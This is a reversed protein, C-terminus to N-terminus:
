LTLPPDTQTMQAPQPAVGLVHGPSPVCYARENADCRIACVLASAGRSTRTVADIVLTDWRGTTTSELWSDNRWPLAPDDGVSTRAHGTPWWAEGGLRTGPPGIVRAALTVETTAAARCHALPLASTGRENPPPIGTHNYKSAMYADTGPPGVIHLGGGGRDSLHFVLSPVGALSAASASTLLLHSLRSLKTRTENLIRCTCEGCNVLVQLLPTEEKSYQAVRMVSLSLAPGTGEEGNGVLLLRAIMTQSM